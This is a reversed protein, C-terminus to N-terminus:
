RSTVQGWSANWSVHTVNCISSSRNLFDEDVFGWDRRVDSKAALVFGDTAAINGRPFARGVFLHTDTSGLEPGVLGAHPGSMVRVSKQRARWEASTITKTAAARWRRDVDMASRLSGASLPMLIRDALEAIDFVRWSHDAMMAAPEDETMARVSSM